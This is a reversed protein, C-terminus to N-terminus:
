RILFMLLINVVMYVAFYSAVAIFVNVGGKKMLAVEDAENNERMQKITSYTHRKYIYDGFAGILIHILLSVLGLVMVMIMSPTKFFLTPDTMVENLKNVMGYGGGEMTNIMLSQFIDYMILLIGPKYCKRGILWYEPVLFAIWNWGAKAKTIAMNKFVRLYRTINVGVFLALNSAKEGDIEDDRHMGESSLIRDLAQDRADGDNEDMFNIRPNPNGGDANNAGGKKAAGMGELLKEDDINNSNSGGNNMNDPTIQSDLIPMQWQQPTGHTDSYFCKGIMKWCERHHPAGCDPCVVIDDDEFLKAHCVPCCLGEYRNM